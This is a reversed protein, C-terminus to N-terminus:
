GSRSISLLIPSRGSFKLANLHIRAKDLAEYPGVYVVYWPKGTSRVEKLFSKYGERGLEAILAEADKKKKSSHVQIRYYGGESNPTLVSVQQKEKSIVPSEPEPVKVITEKENVGKEAKDSAPASIPAATSIKEPTQKVPTTTMLSKGNVTQEWKAQVWQQLRPLGGKGGGVFFALGAIFFLISVAVPLREKFFRKLFFEKGEEGLLSRIGKRVHKAEIRDVKANFGGLLARDCVLNILRPYGKSYNHIEKLAGNSFTTRATGCAILIRHDIYNRTEELSLPQLEYQISIRQRLQKLEPSKLKEELEKQGVFIIQLLKEKETELNSLLRLEEMIDLSLNQAEDIIIVTSGGKAHQDLLFENLADLLEKKTARNVWNSVVQPTEDSTVEIDKDKAEDGDDIRRPRSAAAAMELKPTIRLDHVLTRLLDVDSLMPNVILAVQINKDLRNLLCRSLTTKGAGIGGLIVIFGERERIGYLMHDMAGQHHKSFYLYKPDPTLNFPKERFNYFAEYM